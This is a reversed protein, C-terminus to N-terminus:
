LENEIAEILPRDVCFLPYTELNRFVWQKSKKKHLLDWCVSGAIKVQSYERGSLEAYLALYKRMESLHSFLRPARYKEIWLFVDYILLGLDLRYDEHTEFHEWDIVFFGQEGELINTFTFDGHTFGLDEKRNHFSVLIRIVEKFFNERYKSGRLDGVELKKGSFYPYRLVSRGFVQRLSIPALPGYFNLLGLYEHQNAQDSLLDNAYKLLFLGDETQELFMSVSKGHRM